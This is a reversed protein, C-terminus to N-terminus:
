WIRPEAMYVAIFLATGLASLIDLGVNFFYDNMVARFGRGWLSLIPVVVCLVGVGLVGLAVIDISAPEGGQTFYDIAPRVSDALFFVTAFAFVVLLSRKISAEMPNRNPINLWIVLAVTAAAFSIIGLAIYGMRPDGSLGAVVSVFLAVVGGGLLLLVSSSNRALAGVCLWTLVFVPRWIENLEPLRFGLSRFYDLINDIVLKKIFNLPYALALGDVYHLWDAFWKQYQIEGVHAALLLLSFTGLIIGAVRLAVSGM